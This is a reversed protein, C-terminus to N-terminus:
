NTGVNGSAELAGSYAADNVGSTLNTYGNVFDHYLYQMTNTLFKNDKLIHGTNEYSGECIGTSFAAGNAGIWCNSIILNQNTLSLFITNGNGNNNTIYCNYFFSNTTTQLQIADPIITSNNNSNDTIKGSVTCDMTKWLFLGSAYKGYNGTIASNVTINKGSSIRLGGSYNSSINNCIASNVTINKGSSISLGGSSNSSINNCIDGNIVANTTFFISIGGANNSSVNNSVVSNVTINNENQIYLGGSSNSALNNYIKGNIINGEGYSFYVGGTFSASNGFVDNNIVANTTKYLYAGGGSGSTNNSIVANVTINKEYSSYLGGGRNSCYNNCLAGNIINNEGYSLYVGGGYDLSQNHSVVASFTNNAGRYLYIGGYDNSSINNSIINKIIFNTICWSYIGGGSNTVTNNYVASDIEGNICGQAYIGGGTRCINNYINAKVIITDSEYIYIGGGSYTLGQNSYYNGYIKIDRSGSCSLGGTSNFINVNVTCNTSQRLYLGRYPSNYIKINSISVWASNTINFLGVQANGNLYTQGTQGSFNDDWGGSIDIYSKNYIQVGYSSSNLGAGPLYEGQGARIISKTGSITREVATNINYLPATKSGENNDSGSLSVYIYNTPMPLVASIRVNTINIVPSTKGHLDAAWASINYLGNALVLNTEWNAGAKIPALNSEGIMLYVKDLANEYDAATGKINLVSNSIIANAAPFTVALAPVQNSAFIDIESPLDYVMLRYGRLFVITKIKKKQDLADTYKLLYVGQQHKELAKYLNVSSEYKLAGVKKGHISFLEMESGSVIQVASYVHPTTLFLLLFVAASFKLKFPNNKVIYFLM